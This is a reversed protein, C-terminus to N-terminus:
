YQLKSQCLNCKSETTEGREHFFSFEEVPNKMTKVLM